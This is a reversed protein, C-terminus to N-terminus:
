SFFLWFQSIYVWVATFFDSNHYSSQLELFFTLVTLYMCLQFSIFDCNQSFTLTALRLSMIRQFFDSGPSTLEIILYLNAIWTHSIFKCNCFFFILIALHLSAITLYLCMKSFFNLQSIYAWFATFFDSNPYSSRFESFFTLVALHLHVITLYLIVIRCFFTIITLHLSFNQSFTLIALYLSRLRLFTLILIYFACHSIYIM